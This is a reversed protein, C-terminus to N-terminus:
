WSAAREKVERLPTVIMEEVVGKWNVHFQDAAAKIAELPTACTVYATEGGWVVMYRYKKM